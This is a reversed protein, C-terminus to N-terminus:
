CRTMGISLAKGYDCQCSSLIHGISEPAVHCLRCMPSVDHRLVERRFKSTHLVGDQAAFVLAETSALFKGYRLWSTSDVRGAATEFTQRYAGHICKAKLEAVSQAQQVCKLQQTIHNTQDTQGNQESTDQISQEWPLPLDYRSLIGMADQILNPKLSACRWMNHQLVGRLWPESQGCLYEVM